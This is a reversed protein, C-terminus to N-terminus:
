SKSECSFFQAILEIKKGNRLTATESYQIMALHERGEFVGCHVGDVKWESLNKGLWTFLAAGAAANCEAATTYSKDSIRGDVIYDINGFMDEKADQDFVNGRVYFSM